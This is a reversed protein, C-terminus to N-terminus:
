ENSPILRIYRPTLVELGELQCHVNNGMAPVNTVVNTM